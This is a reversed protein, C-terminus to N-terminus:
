SMIEFDLVKKVKKNMKKPDLKIVFYGRINQVENELNVLELNKSDFLKLTKDSGIFM